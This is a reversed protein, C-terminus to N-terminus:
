APAGAALAVVPDLRDFLSLQSVPAFTRRHLPTPGFQTLAALHEPTGYGKNRALGYAPYQEDWAVLMADRHVKALISAAAISQCQADGKIISHQPLGVDLKMADILLFEPAPRLAAVARTMALRSAQYINLREIESVSAEAVAYAIAKAKIKHTLAERVEAALEKSDHLGRIGHRPPLVVAAACVPGFVCGRGVEDV